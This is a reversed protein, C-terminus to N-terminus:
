DTCGYEKLPYHYRVVVEKFEINSFEQLINERSTNLMIYSSCRAHPGKHVKTKEDVDNSTEKGAVWQTAQDKIGKKTRM